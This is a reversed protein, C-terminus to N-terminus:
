YKWTSIIVLLVSLTKEDISHPSIKRTSNDTWESNLSLVVRIQEKIRILCSPPQLGVYVVSFRWFSQTGNKSDSIENVREVNSFDIDPLSQGYHRWGKGHHKCCTKNNSPLYEVSIRGFTSNQTFPYLSKLVRSPTSGESSWIIWKWGLSFNESWYKLKNRKTGKRRVIEM